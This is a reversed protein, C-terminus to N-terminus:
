TPSISAASVGQTGSGVKVRRGGEWIGGSDQIIMRTRAKMKDIAVYLHM